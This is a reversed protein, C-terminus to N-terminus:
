YLYEFYALSVVQLHIQLVLENPKVGPVALYLRGQCIEYMNIEFPCQKVDLPRNLFVFSLFTEKM